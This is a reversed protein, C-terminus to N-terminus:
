DVEIQLLEVAKTKLKLLQSYNHRSRTIESSLTTAIETKQNDGVFRDPHCKTILDKYLKRADGSVGRFIDGFDPPPNKQKWDTPVEFIHKPKNMRYVIYALVVFTILFIVLVVGWHSMFSGHSQPTNVISDPAQSFVTDKTSFSALLTLYITNM